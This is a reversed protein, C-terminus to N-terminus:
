PNAPSYEPESWLLPVAGALEVAEDVVFEVARETWDTHATGTLLLLDGTEWGPFVLGAAPNSELNGLTMFAGNGYYDPWRVRRPGLVQVFGPNGGRHSADAHGEDDATAIFFTDASSIVLQQATSLQAARAAPRSIPRPSAIPTRKQIYKPCNSFVQDATIRLGDSTPEARGNLRMRRRTAPELAITGVRSPRSLIEALPDDAAPSAAVLLTSEDPVSIFGPPGSLLTAWMRGAADAAAVAITQREALFAAAVPPVTSRIARGLHDPREREGALAQATREGPHYVEGSM